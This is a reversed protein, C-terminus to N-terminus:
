PVPPHNVIQPWAKAVLNDWSYEKAFTLCSTVEAGTPGQSSSIWKAWDSPNESIRVTPPLNSFGCVGPPTSIVPIGRACADIFKLKSGAGYTFPLVLYHMGELLRTLDQDSVNNHLHWGREKCFPKWFGDPGSGILHFECFSSLSPWFKSDFNLIADRTIQLNLAGLFYIKKILAAPSPASARPRMTCGNPLVLHTLDPRHKRYKDSAEQSVRVLLTSKPLDSLIELIRQKSIRCLRKEWSWKSNSELNDWWDPDYNHTDIVIIKNSLRFRILPYAWLFNVYILTPRFFLFVLLCSLRHFIGVHKTQIYHRNLLLSLFGFFPKNHIRPLQLVNQSFSGSSSKFFCRELLFSTISNAELLRAVSVSRYGAGDIFHRDVHPAVIFISSNM